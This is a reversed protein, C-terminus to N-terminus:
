EQDSAWNLSQVDFRGYYGGREPRFRGLGVMIGANKVVQSFVNETITHDYIYVEFKAEWQPICCFNKFVRKGSGKVGDSPVFLRDHSVEDAKVLLPAADICMIGAEFYKGFEQRGKAPVRIKMRQASSKICNSFSMGPIEVFGQANKHMRNRWTRLEYQPDNEGPLVPFEEKSYAKSQSYNSTGKIHVTALIM